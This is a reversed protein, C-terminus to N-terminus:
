FGEFCWQVATFPMSFHSLLASPAVGRLSGAVLPVIEGLFRAASLPCGNVVLGYMVLFSASLSM